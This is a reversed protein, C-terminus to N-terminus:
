RKPTRYRIVHVKEVTVFGDEVVEDLYPMIKKINPEQDVIEVVVPLNHSLELLGISHVHRDAGFGMLGRLVTAGALQLKQAEELILRYVCKGKHKTEESLFIRLLVDEEVIKM